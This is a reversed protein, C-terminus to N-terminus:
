LSLVISFQLRPARAEHHYAQAAIEKTLPQSVMVNGSFYQNFSFRSGLGTSAASQKLKAGVAGKIDWVVGTDYFIYLQASNLIAWGPYTSYRCELSGSLGRDGTIESPDYGRGLQSGGFGFQSPSLLPYWSYQGSVLAYLTIRNNIQQLRSIQMNVKRYDGRGGLTSTTTSTVSNTAGLINLGQEIHSSISNYGYYRDSFDYTGGFKIPRLHDTYLPEGFTNTSSDIYSFSGDLTVNHDQARILPYTLSGSYTVADGQLQISRLNLGPRTKSNNIDFNFRLGQTGLPMDYSMDLYSLEKPRSTRVMTARTADGSFFVSNVNVAGTAQQPGMYLTGYNDYSLSGTITRVEVSLNMNSAGIKHESPELVSRVQVGPLENALRLYYEMVKVQLPRSQTIRRAYAVLIREAGKAEGVIKIKDIYGEIVQIHVVGKEVHQPPLIARSLIYGNNRYYNTISDVIIQLDSVSLEVNLKKKYLTALQQDSYVTNGDIIVKNLKFKIKAAKPAAPTPAAPQAPLIPTFESPSIRKTPTFTQEVRGPQTSSPITVAAIAQSNLMISTLLMVRLSFKITIEWNKAM